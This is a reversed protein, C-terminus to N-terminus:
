IIGWIKEITLKSKLTEWQNKIRNLVMIQHDFKFEQIGLQVGQELNTIVLNFEQIKIKISFERVQALISM